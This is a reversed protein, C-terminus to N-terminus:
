EKGLLSMSVLNVRRTPVHLIDNFILTKGSAFKLLVKDKRLVKTTRSNGFYVVENDYEVPKYSSFIERNASIHRTAGSDVVYKKV